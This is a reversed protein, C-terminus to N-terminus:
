YDTLHAILGIIGFIALIVVSQLIYHGFSMHDLDFLAFLVALGLIVLITFGVHGILQWFTLWM